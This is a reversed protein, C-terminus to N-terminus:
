VGARPKVTGECAQALVTGFGAAFLDCSTMGNGASSGNGPWSAQFASSSAASRPSDRRGSAWAQRSSRSSTRARAGGIVGANSTRSACSSSRRPASASLASSGSACVRLLSEARNGRRIEVPSVEAQRDPADARRRRREHDSGDWRREAAPATAVTATARTAASSMDPECPDAGTMSDRAGARLAGATARLGPTRPEFAAAVDDGEEVGAGVAVEPEEADGGACCDGNVAAGLALPADEAGPRTCCSAADM